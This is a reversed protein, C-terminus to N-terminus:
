IPPGDDWDDEKSRDRLGQAAAIAQRRQEASDDGKPREGLMQMQNAVIETTYKTNGDKDQWKRTQLKGEIYVKSGKKLYKVGIEALKGFMAVRHWETKEKKEGSGRDRWEESTAVNINCICKGDNTYRSDPDAGLNGIIIAKNVGKM